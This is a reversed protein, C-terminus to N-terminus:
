GFLGFKLGGEGFLMDSVLEGVDGVRLRFGFEFEVGFGFDLEDWAVVDVDVTFDM